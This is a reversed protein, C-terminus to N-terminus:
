RPHRRQGRRLGYSRAAYRRGQLLGVRDRGSWRAPRRRVPRVGCCTRRPSGPSTRAPSARRLRTTAGRGAVAPFVSHVFGHIADAGSGVFHQAWMEFAATSPNEECELASGRERRHDLRGAHDADRRRDAADRARPQAHGPRVVSEFWNFVDNSRIRAIACGCGNRSIFSQGQDINPNFGVTIPNRTVAFDGEANGDEDLETVRVACLGYPVGCNVAM